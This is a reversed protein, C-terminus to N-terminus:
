CSVAYNFLVSRENTNGRQPRLQITPNGVNWVRGTHCICNEPQLTPTRSLLSLTPMFLTLTVAKCLGTGNTSDDVPFVQLAFSNSRHMSQYVAM